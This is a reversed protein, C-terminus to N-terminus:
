NSAKATGHPEELAELIQDKLQQLDGSNNIVRDPKIQELETESVHTMQPVGPRDVRWIVGGWKEIWDAENLFRLDSIVVKPEEAVKSELKKIWYKPDQARRYETGWWQLVARTPESAPKEWPDSVELWHAFILDPMKPLNMKWTLSYKVERRVEDAFGFRKYGVMGLMAAALDKGSGARGTLAILTPKRWPLKERLAEPLDLPTDVVTM